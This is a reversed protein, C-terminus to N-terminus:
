SWTGGLKQFLCVIQMESAIVLMGTTGAPNPGLIFSMDPFGPVGLGLYSYPFGSNSESSIEAPKWDRSLDTEAPSQPYPLRAIPIPAQLAYSLMWPGTYAM